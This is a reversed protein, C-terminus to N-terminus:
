DDVLGLELEVRSDPNWYERYTGAAAALRGGSGLLRPAITMLQPRETGQLGKGSAANLLHDALLPRYDDRGALFLSGHGPWIVNWASDTVLRGRVLSNDGRPASLKVALARAGGDGSDLLALELRAYRLAPDAFPEVQADEFGLIGVPYFTLGRGIASSTVLQAPADIPTDTASEFLSFPDQLLAFGTVVMGTLLGLIAVLIPM